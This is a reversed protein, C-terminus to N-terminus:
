DDAASDQTTSSSAPQSTTDGGGVVANIVFNVLAYSFFIAALGFSAWLIMDKGKKVKEENGASTVWFFGGLIFVGLALSGVIGLIARIINGIIVRPDNANAGLPNDLSTAWVFDFILLFLLAIVLSVFFKKM